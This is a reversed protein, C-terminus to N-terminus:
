DSSKELIKALKNIFKFTLWLTALLPIILLFLLVLIGLIAMVNENWAKHASKAEGDMDFYYEVVAKDGWKEVLEEKMESEEHVVRCVPTKYEYRERGLSSTYMLEEVFNDWNVLALICHGDIRVTRWEYTSFLTDMVAGPFLSMKSECKITFLYDNEIAVQLDEYTSVVFTDETPKGGVEGDEVYEAMNIYDMYKEWVSPGYHSIVSIVGIVILAALLFCIKVLFNVRYHRIRM